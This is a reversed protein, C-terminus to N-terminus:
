SEATTIPHYRRVITCYAWEIAILPLLTVVYAGVILGWFTGLFARFIRYPLKNSIPSPLFFHQTMEYMGKAFGINPIASPDNEPPSNTTVFYTTMAGFVNFNFYNLPWARYSRTLGEFNILYTFVMMIAAAYIMRNAAAKMAFNAEKYDRM